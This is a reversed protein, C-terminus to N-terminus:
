RERVKQQYDKRISVNLVKLFVADLKELRHDTEFPLTDPDKLHEAILKLKCDKPTCEVLLTEYVEPSPALSAWAFSSRFFDLGIRFKRIEVPVARGIESIPFDSPLSGTYLVKCAHVIKDKGSFEKFSTVIKAQFNQQEERLEESVVRGSVFVLEEKADSAEPIESALMAPTDSGKMDILDRRAFADSPVIESLLADLLDPLTLDLLDLSMLYESRYSKLMFHKKIQLSSKM